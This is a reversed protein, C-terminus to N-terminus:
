KPRSNNPGGGGLFPRSSSGHQFLQKYAKVQREEDESVQKSATKMTCYRGSQMVQFSVQIHELSQHFFRINKPKAKKCVSKQCMGHFRYDRKQSSKNIQHTPINTIMSKLNSTLKSEHPKQILGRKTFYFCTPSIEYGMLIKLYFDRLYAYDIHRLFKLQKKLWIM